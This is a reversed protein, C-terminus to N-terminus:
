RTQSTATILIEVSPVNDLGKAPVSKTEVKSIAEAVDLGTLVTGFVAYGPNEANVYDLDPNDATNIFWQSTASDFGADRYMGVTGRVNKLGNDSELKIAAQTPVKVALGSTYGGTIVGREPIATHFLVNRYFPTTGNVYNLFNRVTVPAKAADLELTIVGKGTTISVQPQPVNFALRALFAGGTTTVHGVLQGVGLVDCTFQQTDDSGNPVQTVNECGGEMGLQIGQRLNRGNVTITATRSFRTNAASLTSVAPSVDGGGGGCGPLMAVLPLAALAALLGATPARRASAMRQLPQNM